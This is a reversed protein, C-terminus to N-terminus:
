FGEALWHTQKGRSHLVFNARLVLKTFNRYAKVNLTGLTTAGGGYGVVQYPGPGLLNLLTEQLRTDINPNIAVYDGIRFEM